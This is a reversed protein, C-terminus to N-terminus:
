NLFLTVEEEGKEVEEEGRAGSKPERGRRVESAVKQTVQPFRVPSQTALSRLFTSHFPPAFIAAFPDCSLPCGSPLYTGATPVVCAWSFTFSLM